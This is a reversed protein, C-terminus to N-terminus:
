DGTERDPSPKMKMQQGLLLKMYAVDLWRGFKYGVERFCAVREFGLSGAVGSQRGARHLSRRHHHRGSATRDPRAHAGARRHLDHRIYVSVEVSRAHRVAIELGLAAWGVVRGGGRRRHGFPGSLPGPVVGAM